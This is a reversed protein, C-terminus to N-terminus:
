CDILDEGVGGYVIFTKRRWYDPKPADNLEIQPLLVPCKVHADGEICINKIFDFFSRGLFYISGSSASLDERFVGYIDYSLDQNSFTKKDFVFAVGKDYGTGFIIASGLVESSEDTWQCDDKFNHLIERNSMFFDEINNDGFSDVYEPLCEIRFHNIGFVGAGFMLCFEKYELPLAFKSKCEFDEIQKLKILDMRIANEGLIVEIQHNRLDRWKDLDMMLM